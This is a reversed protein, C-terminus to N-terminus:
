SNGDSGRNMEPLQWASLAGKLCDLDMPKKMYRDAGLRLAKDVTNSDGFASLMIIGVSRDMERIKSLVDIGSMGPMRIDLLVVHPRNEEFRSLAEEGNCATTVEYGQGSLYEDLVQCILLEDDVVLIRPMKKGMRLGKKM